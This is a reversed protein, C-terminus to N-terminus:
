RFFAHVTDIIEDRDYVNVNPYRGHGVKGKPEHHRKVFKGLQADQGPKLTYGLDTALVACLVLDQKQGITLQSSGLEEAFRQELAARLIPNTISPLAAIAQQYDIADRIPPLQRVIPAPKEEKLKEITTMVGISGFTRALQKAMPAKAKSDYAFYEITLWVAQPPFGNNILDGADFGQQTLKESLKAGAFEGDRTIAMHDVGCCRAVGRISLNGNDFAQDRIFDLFDSQTTIINSM